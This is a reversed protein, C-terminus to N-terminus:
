YKIVDRVNGGLTILALANITLVGIVIWNWLRLMTLENDSLISLVYSLSSFLTFVVFLIKLIKWMIHWVRRGKTQSEQYTDKIRYLVLFLFCYILGVLFAWLLGVMVYEIQLFSLYYVGYKRIHLNLILLGVIYAIGIVAVGAKSIVEVTDRWSSLYKTPPNKDVEM